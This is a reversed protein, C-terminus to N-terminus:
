CSLPQSLQMVTAAPKWALLAAGESSRKQAASRLPTGTAM